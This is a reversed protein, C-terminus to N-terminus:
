GGPTYSRDSLSRRIQRAPGAREPRCWRLQRIWLGLVMTPTADWAFRRGTRAATRDAPTPADAARTIASRLVATASSWGGREYRFHFEEVPEASKGVGPPRFYHQAAGPLRRLRRLDVHDGAACESELNRGFAGSAGQSDVFPLVLGFGPQIIGDRGTGSFCDVQAISVGGLHLTGGGPRDAIRRDGIKRVVGAAISPKRVGHVADRRVSSLGLQSPGLSPPWEDTM